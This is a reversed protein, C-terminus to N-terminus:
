ILRKSFDLCQTIFDIYGTWNNDPFSNRSPLAGQVFIGDPIEKIEANPPIYFDSSKKIDNLQNQDKVVIGTQNQSSNLIGATSEAKEQHSMHGTDTFTTLSIKKNTTDIAEKINNNNQRLTEQITKAFVEQYLRLQYGLPVLSDKVGSTIVMRKLDNSAIKQAFLNIGQTLFEEVKEWNVGAILKNQNKLLHPNGFITNFYQNIIKQNETINNNSFIKELANKMFAKKLEEPIWNSWLSIRLLNPPIELAAVPAPLLSMSYSATNLTALTNLKINKENIDKQYHKLLQYVTAMTIGGGLSHGIKSLNTNEPCIIRAFQAMHRGINKINPSELSSSNGSGPYAVAFVDDELFSLMELWTSPGDMIGNVCISIDKNTKSQIEGPHYFFSIWAHEETLPDESKFYLDGPKLIQYSIQQPSPIFHSDEPNIPIDGNQGMFVFGTPNQQSEGVYKIIFQGQTKDKNQLAQLSIPVNGSKVAQYHDSFNKSAHLKKRYIVKKEIFIFQSKKIPLFLSTKM